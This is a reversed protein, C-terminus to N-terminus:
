KMADLQIMLLAFRGLANGLENEDNSKYAQVVDDAADRLKEFYEIGEM